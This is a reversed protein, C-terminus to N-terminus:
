EMRRIKAVDLYCRARIWVKEEKGEGMMEWVWRLSGAKRSKRKGKEKKREKYREREM